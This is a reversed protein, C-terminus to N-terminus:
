RDPLERRAFEHLEASDESHRLHEYVATLPEYSLDDTTNAKENTKEM